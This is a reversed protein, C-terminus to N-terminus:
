KARQFTPYGFFTELTHTKHDPFIPRYRKKLGHVTVGLGIKGSKLDEQL